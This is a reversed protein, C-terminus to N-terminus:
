RRFLMDLYFKTEEEDALENYGPELTVFVVPLVGLHENSAGVPSRASPSKPSSERRTFTSASTVRTTTSGTSSLPLSTSLSLLTLHSLLMLQSQLSSTINLTTSAAICLRIIGMPLM